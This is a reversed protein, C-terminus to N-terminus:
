YAQIKLTTYNMWENMWESMWENELGNIQILCGVVFVRFGRITLGVYALRLDIFAASQYWIVHFYYLTQAHAYRVHNTIIQTAQYPKRVHSKIPAWVETIGLTNGPLPSQISFIEDATM